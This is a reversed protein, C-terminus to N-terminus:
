AKRRCFSLCELEIKWCALYKKKYFASKKDVCLTSKYVTRTIPSPLRFGMGNQESSVRQSSVWYDDASARHPANAYTRLLLVRRAWFTPSPVFCWSSYFRWETCTSGLLDAITRLMLILLFTVWYVDLGSPRHHFSADTILLFKYGIKKIDVWQMNVSVVDTRRGTGM